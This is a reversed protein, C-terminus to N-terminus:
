PLRIPIITVKQTLERILVFPPSGNRRIEFRVTSGIAAKCFAALGNTGLRGTAIETWTNPSTLASMTMVLRPMPRGDAASARLLVWASGSLPMTVSRDSLCAAAVFDEATPVTLTDHVISDRVATFRIPTDLALDISTLAPDAVVAAYPGPALDAMELNGSSDTIAQYDTHSLRLRTGGAPNGQWDVAHVRLTGLSAHWATGDPWRAMALEGGTERVDAEGDRPVTGALTDAFLGVVRISWRDILTLGNAMTHFSLEADSQRHNVAGASVYRYEIDGLARAATDVWLVGQIDVRGRSTAAAAFGLGVDKPRTVDPPVLRLCYGLLFADDILVDIDPALLSRRGASDVAFGKTVFDATSRVAHFPIGTRETSDITVWQAIVRDHGVDTARRIRLRKMAAPVVERAMLSAIIGARAQEWLGLASAVDPRRPCRSNGVIRVPTLLTALRSMVLELRAIGDASAPVPAEHPSYGIRLVRVRRATTLLPIQAQGSSGTLSRAVVSGTSDLLLVVSGRLPTLSASDRATVSLLQAPASHVCAVALLVVVRRATRSLTSL